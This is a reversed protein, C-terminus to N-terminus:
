RNLISKVVILHSYKNKSKTIFDENKSQSELDALLKFLPKRDFPNNTTGLKTKIENEVINKAEKYIQEKNAASFNIIGESVLIKGWFPKIIDKDLEGTLGFSKILNQYCTKVQQITTANQNQFKQETKQKALENNIRSFEAQIQKRFVMYANLIISLTQVSFKGYYTAIDCDKLKEAVALDFATKLEVFSLASFYNFILDM